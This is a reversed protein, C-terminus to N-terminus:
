LTAAVKVVDVMEQVAHVRVVAAGQQVACAVVAATTFDREKAPRTTTSSLSSPHPTNDESENSSKLPTPWPQSILTGLFSKRSAGILLPFGALPNWNPVEYVSYARGAVRRSGSAQDAYFRTAFQPLPKEAVIEKANRLLELNGEVDKSFGIGPDVLVQWRRLAGSGKTARVVKDGLETRVGEIVSRASGAVSSYHSYDKNAGADGRSHMLVVPVGTEKALTKMAEFHKESEASSSTPSEPSYYEPGGTFAYVDNICNM